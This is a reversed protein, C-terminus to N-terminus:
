ADAVEDITRHKSVYNEAFLGEETLMARFYQGMITEALAGHPTPWGTPVSSKMWTHPTLEDLEEGGLPARISHRAVVVTKVTQKAEAHNAVAVSFLLGCAAVIAGIKSTRSIKKM